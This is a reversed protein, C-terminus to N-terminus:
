TWWFTIEFILIGIWEKKSLNANLFKRINDWERKNNIGIIKYLKSSLNIYRKEKKPRKNNNILMVKKDTTTPIKQKRNLSVLYATPLIM